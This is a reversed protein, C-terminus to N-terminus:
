GYSAAKVSFWGDVFRDAPGDGVKRRGNKREKVDGM